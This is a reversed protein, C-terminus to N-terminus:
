WHPITTAQGSPPPRFRLIIELAVGERNIQSKVLGGEAQGLLDYNGRHGLLVSRAGGIRLSLRRPLLYDVLNALERPSSGRNPEGAM